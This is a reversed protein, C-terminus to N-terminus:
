EEQKQTIQEGAQKAASQILDTVVRPEALDVAKQGLEEARIKSQECKTEIATM